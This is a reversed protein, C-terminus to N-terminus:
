TQNLVKSKYLSCKKVLLLTILTLVKLLKVMLLSVKKLCNANLPGCLGRDTSVFVLLSKREKNTKVLPSQYQESGGALIMESVM